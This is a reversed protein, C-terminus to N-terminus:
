PLRIWEPLAERFQPHVFTVKTAIRDKEHDLWTAWDGPTHTLFGVQVSDALDDLLLAAKKIEYAGALIWGRPVELPESVNGTQLEDFLFMAVPFEVSRRTLDKRKNVLMAGHKELEATNTAISRLNKCRDLQQQRESPFARRALHLPIAFEDLVRRYKVKAAFEPGLADLFERYPRLEGHTISLGDITLVVTADTLAAPAPSPAEGGCATAWLSSAGLLLCTALRPLM